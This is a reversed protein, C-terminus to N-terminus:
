FVFCDIPDNCWEFEIPQQFHRGFPDNVTVESPLSNTVNVGNLLLELMHYVLKSPQADM